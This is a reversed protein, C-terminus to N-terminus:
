DLLFSSLVRNSIDQGYDTLWIYGASEILLGDTKHQNIPDGYVEFISQKFRKEFDDIQIGKTLRLGLFMYEEMQAKLNIAEKEEQINKLQSSNQIYVEMDYTNHYRYGEYYSHAGLGIGIYPYVKWNNVNHKSAKGKKAFNSIEYQKYGNKNLYDKALTYMRRELDESPQELKEQNAMDGFPTGEEVILSYASIHEPGLKVIAELTEQWQDLTQTPLAFMLDLNINDFGVHRCLNYSEIIEEQTHTRGIKKLLNNQYAQAGMSIRNVGHKKITKLKEISLTGPNSEMTVEADDAITFSERLAMLIKELLIPPLVSPTGGGIFITKIALPSPTNERHARIEKILADVYPEYKSTDQVSSAFDCYYCKSICFPIHVYIGFDM